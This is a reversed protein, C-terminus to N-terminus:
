ARRPAFLWGGLARGGFLCSPIVVALALVIVPLSPAGGRTPTGRRGAPGGGTALGPGEAGEGAQLGEGAPGRPSWLRAMVGRMWDMLEQVYSTVQSFLGSPAAPAPAPPPAAPPSAVLESGRRVV